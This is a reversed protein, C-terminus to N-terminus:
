VREFTLIRVKPRGGDGDDNRRGHSTLLVFLHTEDRRGDFDLRESRTWRGPFHRRDERSERERAEAQIIEHVRDLGGHCAIRPSHAL